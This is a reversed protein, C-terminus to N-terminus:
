DMDKAIRFGAGDDRHSPPLFRRTACRYLDFDDTDIIGWTGGRYGRQEEFPTSGGNYIATEIDYGSDEIWEAVNSSMDCLGQATNGAPRSCVEQTSEDGCNRQVIHTCTIEENGWPYVIDQGASRAAYEWEADSPLRAGVWEAFTKALYWNVGNIPHNERDEYDMNSAPVIEFPFSVNFVCVGAEICKKFQKVTVETRLMKFSEITVERRPHEGDDGNDEPSGRQYTGGPIVVWDFDPCGPQCPEIAPSESTDDTSERGAGEVDSADGNDHESTDLPDADVGADLLTSTACDDSVKITTSGRVQESPIVFEDSDLGTDRVNVTYTTSTEPCIRHPGPTTVTSLEQDWLFTYPPNGGRVDVEIDVCDGPCIQASDPQIEIRLTEWTSSIGQNGVTPEKSDSKTETDQEQEQEQETQVSSKSTNHSSYCSALTIVFWLAFSTIILWGFQVMKPANGM